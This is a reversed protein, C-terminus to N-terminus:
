EMYWASCGMTAIDLDAFTGRESYLKIKGNGLLKYSELPMWDSSKGTELSWIKKYGDSDILLYCGNELIEYSACLESSKGTEPNWFKKDGVSDILLYCGNELAEYSVFWESSKGTEPNWFKKDGDSDILLYWGNKLAEYSVFWGSSKGTELNLFTKRELSDNILFFLGRGLIQYTDFSFYDSSKGTEPNLFKKNGYKDEKILFELGFDTIFKEVFIDNKDQALIENFDKKSLEVKKFNEM